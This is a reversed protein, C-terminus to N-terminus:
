FNLTLITYHALCGWLACAHVKFFAFDSTYIVRLHTWSMGKENLILILQNFFLSESKFCGNFYSCSHSYLIVLHMICYVINDYLVDREKLFVFKRRGEGKEHARVSLCVFLCVCVCVCMKWFNIVRVLDRERKYVYVCVPFAVYTQGGQKLLNLRAKKINRFNNVKKSFLSYYRPPWVYQAKGKLLVERCVVVWLVFVGWSWEFVCVRERECVCVCVCVCM